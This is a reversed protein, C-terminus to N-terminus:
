THHLSFLRTYRTKVVAPSLPSSGLDGPLTNKVKAVFEAFENAPIRSPWFSGSFISSLLTLSFLVSIKNRM